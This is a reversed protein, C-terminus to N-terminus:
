GLGPTPTASPVAYSPYCTSGYLTRGHPCHLSRFSVSSTCGGSLTATLVGRSTVLTGSESGDNQGRLSSLDAIRQGAVDVVLEATQPVTPTM